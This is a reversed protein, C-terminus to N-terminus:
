LWLPLYAYAALLDTLNRQITTRLLIQNYYLTDPKVLADTINFDKKSENM